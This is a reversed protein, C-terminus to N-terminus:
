GRVAAILLLVFSTVAISGHVLIIAVPHVQGRLHISFLYFGGLAGAGFGVLAYTAFPPAGGGLVAAALCVLGTAAGLGHLVALPMPLPRNGLRMMLMTLGGLAALGFAVVAVWLMDM